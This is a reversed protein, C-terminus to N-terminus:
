APACGATCTRRYPHGSCQGLRSKHVTHAVLHLPAATCAMRRAAPAIIESILQLTHFRTDQECHRASQATTGLHVLRAGLRAILRLCRSILTNGCRQRELARLKDLLRAAQQAHAAVPMDAASGYGARCQQVTQAIPTRTSGSCMGHAYCCPVSAPSSSRHRSAGTRSMVGIEGLLEAWTCWARVSARVSASAAASCRTAAASASSRASCLCTCSVRNTRCHQAARAQNQLTYIRPVTPPVAARAMRIHCCPACIAPSFALKDTWRTGHEASQAFKGLHVLRVGLLARGLCCGLLLKSCRQCELACLKDLLRAAQQAHAAVPIEASGQGTETMQTHLLSRPAAKCAM